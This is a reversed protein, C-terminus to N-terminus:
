IVINILKKPVFIIKKIKKGSIWNQIKKSLLALEKAKKESIGAEVEIKDRVRGNVQIVLTIFEEKILRPDYKPWKQKHISDKHGLKQWLEEAFHPAFPAFLILARELVDKGVRNKEKLYFNVLEMFASIATNFKMAELDEDIKKNLKHVAKEIEVDSKKRGECELVLRWFRKLFIFVGKVGQDSWSIAQDFPGM